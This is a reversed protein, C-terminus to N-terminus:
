KKATTSGQARVKGELDKFKGTMDKVFGNINDRLDDIKGGVNEKIDNSMRQTNDKIKKRTKSGKDPAFLIGLSAGVTAGVLFGFIASGSNKM